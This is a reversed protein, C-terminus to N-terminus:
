RWSFTASTIQLFIPQCKCTEDSFRFPPSSRRSHIRAAFNAASSTIFMCSNGETATECVVSTRRGSCLHRYEKWTRTLFHRIAALANNGNTWTAQGATSRRCAAEATTHPARWVPCLLNPYLSMYQNSHATASGAWIPALLGLHPLPMVAAEPNQLETPIMEPFHEDGLVLANALSYPVTLKEICHEDLYTMFLLSGPFLYSM